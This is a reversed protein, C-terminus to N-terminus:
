QQTGPVTFPFSFTKGQCPDSATSKMQVFNAISVTLSGPTAGVAAPVVFPATGAFTYPGATVTLNTGAPCTSENNSTVTGLTPSGLSVSYPNPNTVVFSIAEVAKGPYLDAVVPSSAAVGLPQATVSTVSASGTGTATWYAYSVGTLLVGATFTGIALVGLRRRSPAMPSGSRVIQIRLAM